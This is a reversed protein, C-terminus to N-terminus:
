RRTMCFLRVTQATAAIATTSTSVPAPMATARAERDSRGGAAAGTSTGDAAGVEALGVGGAPDSMVPGSLRSIRPTSVRVETGSQSGCESAIM